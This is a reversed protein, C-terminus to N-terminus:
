MVEPAEVGMWGLVRVLERETVAATALLLAKRAPDEESLIHHLRYFNSFDQALQFAHKALYAPEATEICQELLLTTKAARLWVEWIGESGEGTLYRGVDVGSVAALADSASTGAKRFISRVRVVAYQLYPGTEGEFSLADKFDFAIVSNRTYRLMFYRLAGVAIAKATAEREEEGLEPHRGDVEGRTAAVLKDILDDAKVGFGKRGSVEIFPRARDEESLQYGLDLACQPTLVVMAYSFHTFRAAQETYGMGRLAEIVNAQPDAQRADIVNYIAQAGGFQPHEREGTEASIWCERDPYKFFKRYAFDKGLLGFKWLHYAIDKGV